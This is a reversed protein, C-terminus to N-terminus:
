NSKYHNHSILTEAIFIKLINMGHIHDSIREYSAADVVNPHCEGYPPHLQKHPTRLHTDISFRM